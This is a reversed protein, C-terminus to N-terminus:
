AVEVDEERALEVDEERVCSGSTGREGVPMSLSWTWIFIAADGSECLHTKTGACTHTQTHKCTQTNLVNHAFHKGDVRTHTYAYSAARVFLNGKVVQQDRHAVGVLLVDDFGSRVLQSKGM